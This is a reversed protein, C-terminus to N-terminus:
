QNNLNKKMKRPLSHHRKAKRKNPIHPNPFSRIPIPKAAKYKNSKEGKIKM